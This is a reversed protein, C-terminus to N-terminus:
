EKKGLQMVEVHKVDIYVVGWRQNHLNCNDSLKTSEAKLHPIQILMNHSAEFNKIVHKDPYEVLTEIM